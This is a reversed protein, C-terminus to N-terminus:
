DGCVRVTDRLKASEATNSTAFIIADRKNAILASECSNLSKEKPADPNVMDVPIRGSNLIPLECNCACSLFQKTQEGLLNIEEKHPAM